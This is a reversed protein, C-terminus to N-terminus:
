IWFYRSLLDDQPSGPAPIDFHGKFFQTGKEPELGLALPGVPSDLTSRRTKKTEEAQHGDEGLQKEGVLQRYAVVAPVDLALGGKAIGQRGNAPMQPAM